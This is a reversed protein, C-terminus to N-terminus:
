KSIIDMLSQVGSFMEMLISKEQEVTILNKEKLITSLYRHKRGTLNDDVQEILAQQIQDLTVYGRFCAISGFRYGERASYKKIDGRDM